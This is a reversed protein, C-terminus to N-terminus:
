ASSEEMSTRGWVTPAVLVCPLKGKANDPDVLLGEYQGHEDGYEISETIIM